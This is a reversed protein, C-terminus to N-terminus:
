KKVRAWASVQLTVGSVQTSQDGNGIAFKPCTKDHKCIYYRHEALKDQLQQKLCAGRSSVHRVRDIVDMVLRLRDMDNPVTIDFQTTM